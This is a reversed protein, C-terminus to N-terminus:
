FGSGANKLFCCQCIVFNMVETGLDKSIKWLLSSYVMNSQNPKLSFVCILALKPLSRSSILYCVNFHLWASAHYHPSFPLLYNRLHLEKLCTVVLRGSDVSVCLLVSGCSDGWNLWVHLLVLNWLGASEFVEVLYTRSNTFPFKVAVWFLCIIKSETARRFQM